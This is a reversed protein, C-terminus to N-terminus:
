HWPMWGVSKGAQGKRMIAERCGHGQAKGQQRAYCCARRPWVTPERTNEGSGSEALFREPYKNLGERSSREESTKNFINLLIRYATKLTCRCTKSRGPGQPRQSQCGDPLLCREQKRMVALVTIRKSIQCGGARGHRRWCLVMPRGPRLWRTRSPFPHQGRVYRWWIDQAGVSERQCGLLM